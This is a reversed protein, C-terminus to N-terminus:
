ELSRSYLSSARRIKRSGSRSGKGGTAGHGEEQDRSDMAQGV